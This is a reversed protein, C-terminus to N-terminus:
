KVDLAHNLTEIIHKTELEPHSLIFRLFPGQDDISFNVFAKNEAKLKERVIKSWQNVDPNNSDKPLVRVCLNLYEPSGLVKLRSDNNAIWEQVLERTSILRDVFQGLGETGISKWITWFSTADAGRGCQWSLKGRDVEADDNHFLYDAGSVDNAALLIGKEKTLFFSSTMAAGFLKHADFTMSDALNLGKVLNKAKSSFMVPGGWAGDAHLWINYKKTVEYIEDVQDFAGYVTTGITANVILPQLGNEIDTIIAQKLSAPNMRGNSDTEIGVVNDTGLGLVAAAKKFSYHSDKSTYIRYTKQSHGNKKLDPHLRQRACHIAMFNAASGGPVVAGESKKTDWGILSCLSEIVESEIKSFVPSAENTALTTKAQSIIETALLMQPSVGSFLQNMFYPSHTSISNKQIDHLLSKLHDLRTPTDLKISDALQTSIATNFKLSQLELDKIKPTYVHLTRGNNSKCSLHHKAGKPTNIVQGKEFIQTESKIGLQLRNEFLGELVLVSCESWGHSHLEGLTNQATWQIEVVEFNDSEFLITRQHGTNDSM